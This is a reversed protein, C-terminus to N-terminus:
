RSRTAGKNQGAALAQAQAQAEEVAIHKDLLAQAATIEATEAAKEAAVRRQEEDALRRVVVDDSGKNSWGWYGAASALAVLLAVAGAWLVPRRAPLAGSSMAAPGSKTAAPPAAPSPTPASPQAPPVQAAGCHPCFKVEAEIAKGCNTCFM